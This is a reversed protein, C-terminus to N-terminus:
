AAPGARPLLEVRDGVRVRGVGAARAYIGFRGDRERTLWRLLEPWSEQTEPDRTPIACRVCPDLLALDESGLRVRGDAWREEAYPDSDISVHVNPRFRRLDSRRTLATTLAGLTEEVTVLLTRRVDQQLALDRQLRVPRGLDDSLAQPLEPDDWRFLRGDPARLLALPVDDVALEELRGLGYSAKWALLGPAERATLTRERGDRREIVAHARDGAVGREDFALVDTEEGAMSKVPWRYLSLVTGIAVDYVTADPRATTPSRGPPVGSRLRSFGRRDM